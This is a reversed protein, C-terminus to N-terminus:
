CSTTYVSVHTEDLEATYGASRIEEASCRLWDGFGGVAKNDPNMTSTDAGPPAAKMLINKSAWYDLAVPDISAAVINVRTAQSYSTSPGARPVANVWICDLITLTPFRTEAMLTGMGGTAITNHSRSGLNATLKDSPVGMYSKVAGTVSYGGHTKLVPLNIVKLRESDYTSRQPDWVGYKFSVQSGSRTTFKPYSVILNSEPDKEEEVVYGDSDDGLSYESVRHTTIKDWQYTSVNFLPFSDAVRQASQTPDEANSQAWNLSGGQGQSGYQAQGNDVIIVEGHFGDPHSTILTILEHLLDTNTGGRQNWQSNVKILIIDGAAILGEPGRNKGVSSSQYFSVGNDGMLDLLKSLGRNTGTYGNVAYISSNPSAVSISKLPFLQSDTVGPSPEPAKFFTYVGVFAVVMILAAVFWRRDLWRDGTQVAALIPVGIITLSALVNAKAAQQCPYSIRSPKMGSRLLLWSLSLVGLLLGHRRVMHIFNHIWM